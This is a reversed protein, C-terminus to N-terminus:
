ACDVSVNSERVFTLMHCTTYATAFGVEAYEFTYLWKRKFVGLNDGDALSPHDRLIVSLTKGTLNSKLRRGWERLTRPYHPGHDEVSELTMRGMTAAHAATIL